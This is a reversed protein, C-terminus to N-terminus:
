DSLALVCDINLLLSYGHVVKAQLAVCSETAVICLVQLCKMLVARYLTM